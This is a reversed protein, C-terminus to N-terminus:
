PTHLVMCNCDVFEEPVSFTVHDFKLTILTQGKKIQHIDIIEAVKNFCDAGYENSKCVIKQNLLYYSEFQENKPGYLM